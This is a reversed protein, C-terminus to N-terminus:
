YGGADQYRQEERADLEPLLHHHWLRAAVMGIALQVDPEGAGAVLETGDVELRWRGHRARFHWSHPGATGNLAVPCSMCEINVTFLPYCSCSRCPCSLTGCERCYFRASSPCGARHPDPEVQGRIGLGATGYMADGVMFSRLASHTEPVGGAKRRSGTDSSGLSM